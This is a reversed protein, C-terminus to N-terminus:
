KLEMIFPSYLKMHTEFKSIIDSIKKDKYTSDIELAFKSKKRSLVMKEIGIPSNEIKLHIINIQAEGFNSKIRDSFDTRKFFQMEPFLAYKKDSFVFKSCIKIKFEPKELFKEIYRLLNFVSNQKEITNMLNEITSIDRLYYRLYVNLFDDIDEPIEKKYELFTEYETKNYDAEEKSKSDEIKKQMDNIIKKNTITIKKKEQILDFYVSQMCPNLFYKESFEIENDKFYEKQDIFPFQKQIKEKLFNLIEDFPQNIKYKVCYCFFSGKQLEM